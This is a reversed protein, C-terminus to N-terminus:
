RVRLPESPMVLDERARWRRTDPKIQAYRRAVREEAEERARRARAVREALGEEGRRADPEIPLNETMHAENCGRSCRLSLM